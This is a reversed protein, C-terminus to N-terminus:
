VYILQWAAAKKLRNMVALGLEDEPYGEAIIFDAKDEDFERLHKFLGRAIGATDSRSGTLRIDARDTEGDAKEKLEKLCEESCLIAIKEFEPQRERLIEIIKDAVYATHGAAKPAVLVMPAKPAYHRYKMGPAKPRIGGKLPGKIAADEIVERDLVSELMEKTVAGPRLLVPDRGTVDIITSELGIRCSGGDVIMDVRGSILFTFVSSNRWAM